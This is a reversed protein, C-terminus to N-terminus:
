LCPHLLAFVPHDARHPDYWRAPSRGLRGGTQCSWRHGARFSAPAVHLPPVSACRDVAVQLIGLLSLGRNPPPRRLRDPADRVPHASPQPGDSDGGPRGPTPPCAGRKSRKSSWVLGRSQRSPEAGPRLRDKGSRQGSGVIRSRKQEMGCMRARVSGARLRGFALPRRRSDASPRRHRNLSVRGEVAPNSLRGSARPARQGPRVASCDSAGSRETNRPAPFRFIVNRATKNLWRVASLSQSCPASGAPNHAAASDPGAGCCGGVLFMARLAQIALGRPFRPARRWDLM